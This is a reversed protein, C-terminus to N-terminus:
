SLVRGIFSNSFENKGTGFSLRTIYTQPLGQNQLEASSHNRAYRRSFTSISISLGPHIATHMPGILLQGGGPVGKRFLSKQGMLSCTKGRVPFAKDSTPQIM